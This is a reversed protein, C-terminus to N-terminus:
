QEGVTGLSIGFVIITVGWQRYRFSVPVYGDNVFKGVRWRVAELGLAQLTAAPCRDSGPQNGVM